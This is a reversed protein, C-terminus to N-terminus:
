EKHPEDSLDIHLNEIKVIIGFNKLTQEIYDTTIYINKDNLVYLDSKDYIIEEEM